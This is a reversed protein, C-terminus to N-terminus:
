ASGEHNMLVVAILSLSSASFSFVFQYGPVTLCPRYPSHSRLLTSQASDLVRYQPVGSGRHSHASPWTVQTPESDSSDSRAPRSRVPSSGCRGNTSATLKGQGTHASRARRTGSTISTQYSEPAIGNAWCPAGSRPIGSNSASYGARNM